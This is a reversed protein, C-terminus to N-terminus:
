FQLSRSPVRCRQEIQQVITARTRILSAGTLPRKRQRAVEESTFRSSATNSSPGGLDFVVFNMVAALREDDLSNLAVNPLRLLYARSEATCLFYGIRGRLQPVHAPFSNGQIGHCGGCNAVYDSQVSGLIPAPKALPTVAGLLVALAGASM